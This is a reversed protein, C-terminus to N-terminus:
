KVEVGERARAICLVSTDRTIKLPAHEIKLWKYYKKYKRLLDKQQADVLGIKQHPIRSEKRTIAGDEFGRIVGPVCYCHARAGQVGGALCFM